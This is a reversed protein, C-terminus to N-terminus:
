RPQLCPELIDSTESGWKFGELSKAGAQSYLDPGSGAEGSCRCGRPSSQPEGAGLAELVANGM